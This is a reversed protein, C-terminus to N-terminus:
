NQIEANQVNLYFGNSNKVIGKLTLNKNLYNSMVSPGNVKTGDPSPPIEFPAWPTVPFINVGDSIGFEPTPFYNKSTLVLKGTLEVNKDLFQGIKKVMDSINVKLVEPVGTSECKEEWVRLCKNKAECWSYGAPGLCGHEDKDGGIIKPTSTFSIETEEDPLPNSFYWVGFIGSLILLITLVILFAHRHPAELQLPNNVPLFNNQSPTPM